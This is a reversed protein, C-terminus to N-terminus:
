GEKEPWLHRLLRDGLSWALGAVVALAFWKWDLREGDTSMM